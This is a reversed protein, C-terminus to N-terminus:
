RAGYATVHGLRVANDALLGALQRAVAPGDLAGSINLALLLLAVTTTSRRLKGVVTLTLDNGNADKLTKDIYQYTLPVKDRLAYKGDATFDVNKWALQFAQRRAELERDRILVTNPRNEFFLNGGPLTEVFRHAALLFRDIGQYLM